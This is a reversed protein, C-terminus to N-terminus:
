AQEERKQMLEWVHIPEMPGPHDHCNGRDWRELDEKLEKWLKEYNM